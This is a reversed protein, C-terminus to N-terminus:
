PVEDRELREAGGRWVVPESGPPVVAPDAHELVDKFVFTAYIFKFPDLYREYAEVPVGQSYLTFEKGEHYLLYLQRKCTEGDLAFTLLAELGIAPGKTVEKTHLIECEPLDRLGRILGERVVPLEARTVPGGLDRVSVYFGTRPDQEPAYIYGYRETMDYRRWGAPRWFSYHWALDRHAVLAETVRQRSRQDTFYAKVLAPYNPPPRSESTSLDIRRSDSNKYKYM